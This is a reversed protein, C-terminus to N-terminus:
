GARRLTFRARGAASILLPPAMAADRRSARRLGLLGGELKGELSKGSRAM